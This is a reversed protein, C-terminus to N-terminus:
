RRLQQGFEVYGRRGLDNITDIAIRRADSDEADLVHRLVSQTDERWLYVHWGEKDGNVLLRLCEISARPNASALAALRQVVLHDVDPTASFRLVRLLLELAWTEPFKDSAFWWGFGALEESPNGSWAISETDVRWTAFSMLRVLVSPPVDDSSNHVVRGVFGLAHRRLSASGKQYFRRLLGDTEAFELM